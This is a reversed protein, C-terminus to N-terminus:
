DDALERSERRRLCFRAHQQDSFAIRKDGIIQYDEHGKGAILICDGPQAQDIAYEIASARDAIIEQPKSFGQEIDAFIQVPSETRPNDSTVVVQDAWREAIQAMQSRKGRDRDGGCGFVCWLKGQHNDVLAQLVNALADPTHAFDVLVQLDLGNTIAEMRGSVAHLKPIIDPLKDLCISQSYLTAIVALLNSINFAGVLPTEIVLLGEPSQISISNLQGQSRKEVLSFHADAQAFLAAGDRVSYTILAVEPALGEVFRAAYQDDQNIIATTVSPMQFLKAKARAYAEMTHHYDLHDHSLNTFVATNIDLAAVRHQDLGHSSVEMAITEVKLSKLKACLKQTQIADPTTMGTAIFDIPVQSDSNNAVGYGLTGLVGCPVSSLAFAQALLQVCSTKGNTGTVGILPLARSPHSYFNGAITSLQKALASIGILPVSYHQNLSPLDQKDILVALAGNSIAQEIFTKGHYHVGAMAVFAYGPKIDRSDISLGKLSLAAHQTSVSQGALLDALSVAPALANDSAM